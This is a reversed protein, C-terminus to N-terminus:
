RTLYAGQECCGPIGGRNICDQVAMGLAHEPTPQGRAVGIVGTRRCFAEASYLVPPADQPGSMAELQRRMECETVGSREYEGILQSVDSESITTTKQEKVREAFHEVILQGSKALMGATVPRGVYKWIAKTCTAITGGQARAEPVQFTMCGLLGMVLFARLASM